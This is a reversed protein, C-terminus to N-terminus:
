MCHMYALPLWIGSLPKSGVYVRCGAAVGGAM